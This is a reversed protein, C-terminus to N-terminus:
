AYIQTIEGVKGNQGDNGDRGPRGPRGPRGKAGRNLHKECRYKLKKNRIKKIELLDCM